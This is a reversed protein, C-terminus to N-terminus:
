ASEAKQARIWAEMLRTFKAVEEISLGQLAEFLSEPDNPPASGVEQAARRVDQEFVTSRGEAQTVEGAKHAIRVLIPFMVENLAEPLGRSVRKVESHEVFVSRAASRNLITVM